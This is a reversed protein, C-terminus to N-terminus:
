TNMREARELQEPTDCDFWPPPGAGACQIEVPRAGSVRAAEHLARLSVGAPDAPLARRLASRRWIACLPQPRGDEDAFYALDGDAVARCLSELAQATVFPLDGACVAVLEARDVRDQDASDQDTTLAALGAAIAAVPGGGPPQERTLLIGAPLRARLEAPGVVVVPGAEELAALVRDLLSSGAVTLLPKAVGGMRRAGGGALVLAAFRM